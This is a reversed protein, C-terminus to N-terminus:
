MLGHPNLECRREVNEGELIELTTPVGDLKSAKLKAYDGREFGFTDQANGTLSWSLGSESELFSGYDYYRVTHKHIYLRM